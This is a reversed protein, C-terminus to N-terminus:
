FNNLSVRLNERAMEAVIEPSNRKFRKNRKEKLM